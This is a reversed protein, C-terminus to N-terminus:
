PNAPPPSTLQVWLAHVENHHQAMGDYIRRVQEWRYHHSEMLSQLRRMEYWCWEMDACAQRIDNELMTQMESRQNRLSEVVTPRQPQPQPPENGLLGPMLVVVDDDDVVRHAQPCRCPPECYHTNNNHPAVPRFASTRPM